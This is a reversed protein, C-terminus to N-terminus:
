FQMVKYKKLDKEIEKKRSGDKIYFDLDKVWKQYDKSYQELKKIWTPVKNLSVEFIGYPLDPIFNLINQSKQFDEIVMPIGVSKGSQILGVYAKKDGAVLFGVSDDELADVCLKQFSIGEDRFRYEREKVEDQSSNRNKFKTNLDKWFEGREPSDSWAFAGRLGIKDSLFLTCSLSITNILFEDIADNKCLFRYLEINSDKFEKRGYLRIYEKRLFDLVSQKSDKYGENFRKYPSDGHMCINKGVWNPDKESWNLCKICNMECKYKVQLSECLFCNCRIGEKNFVKKIAISKYDCNEDVMYRWVTISDILAQKFTDKSKKLDLDKEEAIEKDMKELYPTEFYNFFTDIGWSFDLEGRQNTYWWLSSYTNEKLICGYVNGKIVNNDNWDSSKKCKILYVVDKEYETISKM